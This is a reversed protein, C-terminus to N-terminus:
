HKSSNGHDNSCKGVHRSLGIIHSLATILDTELKAANSTRHIVEHIENTGLM